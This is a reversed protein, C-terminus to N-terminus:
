MDLVATAFPENFFGRRSSRDMSARFRHDSGIEFHSDPAYHTPRIAIARLLTPWHSLEIIYHLLIV